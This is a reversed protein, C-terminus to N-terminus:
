RAAAKLLSQLIYIESNFFRLSKCIHQLPYNSGKLKFYLHIYRNSSTDLPLVSLLYYRISASTSPGTGKSWASQSMFSLFPSLAVIKVWLLSSLISAIVHESVTRSSSRIHVILGSGPNEPQLKRIKGLAKLMRTWDSCVHARPVLNALMHLWCRMSM